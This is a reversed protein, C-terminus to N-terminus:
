CVALSEWGIRAPQITSGLDRPELFGYLGRFAGCFGCVGKAYCVQRGVLLQALIRSRPFPRWSEFEAAPRLVLTRWVLTPPLTLRRPEFDGTTTCKRLTTEVIEPPQDTAVHCLSQPFPLCAQVLHLKLYPSPSPVPALELTAGSRV